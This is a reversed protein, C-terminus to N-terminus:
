DADHNSRGEVIGDLTNKYKQWEQRLYILQFRGAETIAYYKRQRGQHEQNYTTVFRAIVLKKLIPYLSSERANTVLKITQSIEYGYSDHRDLMSLILFEILTSSVPFYM